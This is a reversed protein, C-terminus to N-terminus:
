RVERTIKRNEVEAAIDALTKILRGIEKESGGFMIRAYTDPGYFADGAVAPIGHALLQAELERSRLGLVTFDVFAFPGGAPLVIPLGLKELVAMLRDRNPQYTAMIPEIWLQPGGIVANAAAQPVPGVDLADWEFQRHIESLLAEPANIYGVRWNGFAYNKTLSTVTVINDYLNRFIMQPTFVAGDYVYRAYAEDAIVILNNEKAWKILTEVETRSPVYATPNTPNCVLIARSKSSLAKTFQNFDWRWGESPLGHVYIPLAGTQRIPSDFFFTPSPVIVEDGPQLLARFTVGLGHMAGHTILIERTPDAQVGYENKLHIAITERLESSGRTDRVFTKGAAERIAIQVHEPMVLTPSGFIDIISIGKAVAARTDDMVQMARLRQSM